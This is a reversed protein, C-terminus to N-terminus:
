VTEIKFAVGFLNLKESKSVAFKIATSGEAENRSTEKGAHGILRLSIIVIKSVENERDKSYTVSGGKKGTSKHGAPKASPGYILPLDRDRLLVSRSSPQYSTHRISRKCSVIM